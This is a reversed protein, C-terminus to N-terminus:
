VGLTVSRRTAAAVIRVSASPTCVSRATILRSRCLTRSTSGGGIRVGFQIPFGVAGPRPQRIQAMQQDLIAVAEDYVGHRRLGVPPGFSVGPQQHQIRLPFARRPSPPRDARVFGVVHLFEDVGRAFQAAGRVDRLTEVKALAANLRIRNGFSSGLAPGDVLELVLAQIGDLEEIGHITASHPHILAALMRAEREFRALRDPDAAFLPPLVKIAWRARWDRIARVISRVWEAPGIRAQIQYAGIRRGTLMSSPPNSIMQAAVALAPTDLRGQTRVALLTEIERRLADDGACAADLFAEREGNPREVVGDYVEVIRKWREPDM